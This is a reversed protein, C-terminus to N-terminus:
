KTGIEYSLYKIQDKYDVSKVVEDVSDSVKKSISDESYLAVIVVFGDEVAKEFAAPLSKKTFELERPVAPKKTETTTSTTTASSASGTSQQATTDTSQAPQTETQAGSDDAGGGSCGALLISVLVVILVVIVTKRM